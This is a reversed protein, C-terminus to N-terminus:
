RWDKLHMLNPEGAVARLYKEDATVLVGQIVIALAHYAADYFTVPYAATLRMIERQWDPSVARECDGLQRRLDTLDQDADHRYKRILINGVEFYWLTPLMVQIRGSAVADAIRLAQHQYSEADPPLVWKLIVSADL